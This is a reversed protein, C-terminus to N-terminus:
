KEKGIRVKGFHSVQCGNKAGGVEGLAPSGAGGPMKEVVCPEGFRLGVRPKV